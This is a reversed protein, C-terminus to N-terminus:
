LPYKLKFVRKWDKKKKKRNEFLLYIKCEYDLLSSSDDLSSSDELSSSLFFSTFFSALFSTLINPQSAQSPLVRDQNPCVRIMDRSVENLTRM